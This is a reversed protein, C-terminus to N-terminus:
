PRTLGKLLDAFTNPHQESGDLLALLDSEELAPPLTAAENTGGGRLDAGPVVTEDFVLGCLRATAATGGNPCPQNRAGRPARPDKEGVKCWSNTPLPAPTLDSPDRIKDANEFGARCGPPDLGLKFWLNGPSRLGSRRSVPVAASLMPLVAPVVTLLHEVHDRYVRLVQGTDALEALMGPLVPRLDEAFAGVTKMFPAGAELVGRLDDDSAALQGSLSDLDTAFSRISPDLQQQTRVVLQADELLKVTQPLNETAAQQFTRADDILRGFDEGVGRSAADLEEVVTRLDDQPVSQLFQDVSGLLQDTTTPLVTQGVPVTAGDELARSSRGRTPPVFNLFQEGIVSSSRVEAVSNSPIEVGNDVQLRAVAGGGSVLDVSTVKGVEVGRYTVAAQAYLGGANALQVNLDYRGIGMQQPLRVYDLATLTLAAATIVAFVLLKVKTIRNLM